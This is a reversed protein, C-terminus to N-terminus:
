DPQSQRKASIQVQLSHKALVQRDADRLRVFSVAIRPPVENRNDVVEGFLALATHQPLLVLELALLEGVPLATDAIFAIGGESLSVSLPVNGQRQDDLAAMANAVLDIKRNLAKLYTGLERNHEALTRLVNNNEHDLARLERMLSFVESNEFYSEATKQGAMAPPVQCYRLIVRDEVRFFERREAGSNPNPGQETALPDPADDPSM